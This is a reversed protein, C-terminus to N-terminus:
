VRGLVGFFGGGVGLGQEGGAGLGRAGQELEHAAAAVVGRVEFGLEAAQGEDVRGWAHEGHATLEVGLALVDLAVHPGEPQPALEVPDEDM